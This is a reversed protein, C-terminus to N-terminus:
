DDRLLAGGSDRVSVGLGAEFEAYVERMVVVDNLAMAASLSLALVTLPLARRPLARWAGAVLLAVWVAHWHPAYLVYERGYFVHIVFQTGVGLLAALLRADGGRLGICGLVVWLGVALALVLQAPAWESVGAAEVSLSWYDLGYDRILFESIGPFPAVFDLLTFHAFLRGLHAVPAAGLEATRFFNLENALASGSEAQTAPPYWAAQLQTGGWGLLVVVGVVLVLRAATRGSHPRLKRMTAPIVQQKRSSASPTVSGAAAGADAPERGLTARVALAFVWFCFQTITLGFGLVGLLGWGLAESTTFPRRWRLNSLLLPAVAALSAVAASEPVSAALWSTFSFGCLAFAAFAASRSGRTWQWALIGAALAQLTMCLGVLARAAGLPNRGDFALANIARGVPSVLLKQLPHVSSRYAPRDTALDSVVRSVDMDFLGSSFAMVNAGGPLVFAGLAYLAFLGLGALAVAAGFARGTSVHSEPVPERTMRSPYYGAPVIGAGM